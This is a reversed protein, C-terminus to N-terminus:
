ETTEPSYVPTAHYMQVGITMLTASAAAMHHSVCLYL